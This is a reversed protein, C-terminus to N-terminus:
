YPEITKSGSWNFSALVAGLVAGLKELSEISVEVQGYHGDEMTEGYRSNELSSMVMLGGNPAYMSPSVIPKLAIPRGRVQGRARDEAHHASNRVGRLDPFAALLRQHEAALQQPAGDAQKLVALYKEFKDLAFLFSRALIFEYPGTIQRPIKGESWARQMETFRVRFGLEDEDLTEGAALAAASVETELSRRAAQERQWREIGSDRAEEAESLSKASEDDRVKNFLNLAANAEFFTSKMHQLISRLAHEHEPAVGELRSGATVIAFVYM